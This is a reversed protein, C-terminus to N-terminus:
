TMELTPNAWIQIVACWKNFDVRWGWGVCYYACTYGLARDKAWKNKNEEYLRDGTDYIRVQWISSVNHGKMLVSIVSLQIDTSVQRRECMLDSRYFRANLPNVVPEQVITEVEIWGRRFGNSKEVWPGSRELGQSFGNYENWNGTWGDLKLWGDLIQTNKKFARRFALKRFMCPTKSECEHM